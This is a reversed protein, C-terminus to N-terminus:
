SYVASPNQIPILGFADPMGHLSFKIFAMKGIGRVTENETSDPWHSTILLIKGIWQIGSNLDM